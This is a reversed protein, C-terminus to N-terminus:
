YWGKESGVKRETFGGGLEGAWEGFQFISRPVRVTIIIPKEDQDGHKTNETEATGNVGDAKGSWLTINKKRGRM